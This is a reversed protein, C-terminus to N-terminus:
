YNKSKTMSKKFQRKRIGTIKELNPMNEVPVASLNLQKRTSVTTRTESKAGSKGPQPTKYRDPNALEVFDNTQEMDTQAEVRSKFLGPEEFEHYDRM